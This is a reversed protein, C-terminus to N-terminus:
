PADLKRAQRLEDSERAAQDHCKNCMWLAAPPSVDTRLHMYSARRSCPQGVSVGKGCRQIPYVQIEADASM